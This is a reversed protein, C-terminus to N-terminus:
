KQITNTFRGINLEDVIKSGEKEFEDCDKSLSFFKNRINEFEILIKLFYVCRSGSQSLSSIPKQNSKNHKAKYNEAISLLNGFM